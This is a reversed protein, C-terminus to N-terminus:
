FHQISFNLMPTTDCYYFVNIEHSAIPMIRFKIIGLELTIKEIIRVPKNFLFTLCEEINWERKNSDEYFLSLSFNFVKRETQFLEKQIDFHKKLMEKASEFKCMLDLDMFRTTNANTIDGYCTIINKDKIENIQDIVVQRNNEYNYITGTNDVYTRLMKHYREHSEVPGLMVSCQDRFNGSCAVLQWKQIMDKRPTDEKCYLKNKTAVPLETVPKLTKKVYKRKVISEPRTIDIIREADKKIGGSIIGKRLLHRRMDTEKRGRGWKKLFEKFNVKDAKLEADAEPSWKERYNPTNNAEILKDLRNLIARNTRLTPSIQNVRSAIYQQEIYNESLIKGSSKHEELIQYLLELEEATWHFVKM